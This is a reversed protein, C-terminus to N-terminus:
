WLGSLYHICVWSDMQAKEEEHQLSSSSGIWTWPIAYDNEYFFLLFTTYLFLWGIQNILKLYLSKMRIYCLMWLLFANLIPIYYKYFHIQIRNYM